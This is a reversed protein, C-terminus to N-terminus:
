TCARGLLDGSQKDYVVNQSIKFKNAESSIQERTLPIYLQDGIKIHCDNGEGECYGTEVAINAKLRKILEPDVAKSQPMDTSLWGMDPTKSSTVDVPTKSKKLCEDQAQKSPNGGLKKVCTTYNSSTSV